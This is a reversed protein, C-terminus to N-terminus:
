ATVSRSTASRSTRVRVTITVILIAAVAVIAAIATPTSLLTGALRAVAVWALGWCLSAAPALRGHGYIALFVGVLGAVAIVLVAWLDASLGFGEFGSAVLVATVNAATAIAVWGLYLGVTGDAVITEILNKPRTRLTLQFARILVVLLLVIVPVSLWLLDFQISLIWAANLVLSAAIPYGLARQRDDSKQAPLLQWLAYAILGLYIATWIGFAPGDPAIPTADAALAGGSANQIPTGGVAGSGIFSGVVALIASALVVTQRLPDSSKNM